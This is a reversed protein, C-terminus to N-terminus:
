QVKQGGRVGRSLSDGGGGGTGLDRLELDPPDERVYKERKNGSM